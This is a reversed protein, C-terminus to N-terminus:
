SEAPNGSANKAEHMLNFTEEKEPFVLNEELSPVFESLSEAFSEQSITPPADFRPEKYKPPAEFKPVELEQMGEAAVEMITEAVTEDEVPAISVVEPIDEHYEPEFTMEQAPSEEETEPYPPLEETYPANEGYAQGNMIAQTREDVIGSVDQIKVRAHYVAEDASSITEDVASMTEEMLTRIAYLKEELIGLQEHLMNRTFVTVEQVREEQEVANRTIEESQIKADEMATNVIQSAQERASLAKKDADNLIRTAEEQVTQLKEAVEAEAQNRIENADNEANDIIKRARDYAVGVNTQSAKKELEINEKQLDQLQQEYTEIQEQLEQLEEESSASSQLEELEECLEEIQSDKAFMQGEMTNLENTVNALQEKTENLSSELGEKESTIKQLNEELQSIEQKKEELLQKVKETDEGSKDQAEKLANALLEVKENAEQLQASTEEANKSVEEAKQEAEQAKQEAEKARKEANEQDERYQKILESEHAEEDSEYKKLKEKLEDNQDLLEQIFTMVPEKVFGKQGLSTEKLVGTPIGTPMDAM